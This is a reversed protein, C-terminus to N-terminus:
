SMAEVPVSGEIGYEDRLWSTIQWAHRYTKHRGQLDAYGMAEGDITVVLFHMDDLKRILLSDFKKSSLASFIKQQRKRVDTM